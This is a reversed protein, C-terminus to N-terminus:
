CPTQHSFTRQLIRMTFGIDQCENKTPKLSSPDSISTATTRRTNSINSTSTLIPYGSPYSIRVKAKIRMTRDSKEAVPQSSLQAFLDEGHLVRKETVITSEIACSVAEAHKQQIEDLLHKMKEAVNTITTWDHTTHSRPQRSSSDPAEANDSENLIPENAMSGPSRSSSTMTQRSIQPPSIPRKTNTAHRTSPSGRPSATQLGSAARRAPSARVHASTM